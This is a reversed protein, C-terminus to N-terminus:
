QPIRELITHDRVIRSRGIRTSITTASSTPAANM